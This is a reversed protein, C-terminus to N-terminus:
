TILRLSKSKAQGNFETRGRPGASFWSTHVSGHCRLQPEPEKGLFYWLGSLVLGWKELREKENAAELIHLFINTQSPSLNFLPPFQFYLLFAAYTM